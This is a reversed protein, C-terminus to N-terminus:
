RNSEQHLDAPLVVRDIFHIGSPGIVGAEGMAAKVRKGQISIKLIDL